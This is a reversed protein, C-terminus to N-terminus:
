SMGNMVHRRMGKVPRLCCAAMPTTKMAERLSIWAAERALDNM